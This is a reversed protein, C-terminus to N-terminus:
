QYTLSPLQGLQHAGLQTYKVFGTYPAGHTIGRKKSNNIYLAKNVTVLFTFCRKSILLAHSFALNLSANDMFEDYFLATKCSKIGFVICKVHIYGLFSANYMFVDSFRPMKCSKMVFVLWKVNKTVTLSANDM